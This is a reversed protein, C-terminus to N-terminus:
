KQAEYDPCNAGDLVADPKQAYIACSLVSGECYRCSRCCMKEETVQQLGMDDFFRENEPSYEDNSKIEEM